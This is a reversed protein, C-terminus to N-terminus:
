FHSSIYFVLKDTIKLKAKEIPANFVRSVLISNEKLDKTVQTRNTSKM